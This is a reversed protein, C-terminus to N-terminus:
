KKSKMQTLKGIRKAERRRRQRSRDADRREAKEQKEISLKDRVAYNITDLEPNKRSPKLVGGRSKALLGELEKKLPRPLHKGYPVGLLFKATDRIQNKQETTLEFDKIDRLHAVVTFGLFPDHYPRLYKNEERYLVLWKTWEFFLPPLGRRRLLKRVAEDFLGRRKASMDGLFLGYRESDSEESEEDSLHHLKEFHSKIEASSAEPHEGGWVIGEAIATGARRSYEHDRVVRPAEDIQPTLKAPVKFRPDSRIQALDSEFENDDLVLLLADCREDILRRWAADDLLKEYKALVKGLRSVDGEKDAPAV